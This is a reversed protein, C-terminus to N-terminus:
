SPRLVNHRRYRYETVPVTGKSLKAEVGAPRHRVTGAACESRMRRLVLWGCGCGMGCAVQVAGAHNQTHPKHPNRSHSLARLGHYYQSAEFESAWRKSYPLFHSIADRMCWMISHMYRQDQEYQKPGFGGREMGYEWISISQFWLFDHRCQQENFWLGVYAPLINFIFPYKRQLIEL